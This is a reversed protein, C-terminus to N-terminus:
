GTRSELIEPLVSPMSATESVDDYQAQMTEVLAM